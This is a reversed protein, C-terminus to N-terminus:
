GFFPNVTASTCKGWIFIRYACLCVGSLALAGYFHPIASSCFKKFRSITDKELSYIFLIKNQSKTTRQDSKVHDLRKGGIFEM